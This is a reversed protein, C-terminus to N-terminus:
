SILVTVLSLASALVCKSKMWSDSPATASSRPKVMGMMRSIVSSPRMLDSLLSVRSHVLTLRPTTEVTQGRSLVTQCSCCLLVIGSLSVALRARESISRMMKVWRMKSLSQLASSALRSSTILPKKSGIAAM